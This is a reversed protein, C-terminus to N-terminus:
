SCILSLIINNIISEFKYSEDTSNVVSNLKNTLAKVDSSIMVNFGNKKQDILKLIDILSKCKGIFKGSLSRSVPKSLDALIKSPDTKDYFKSDTFKDVSLHDSNLFNTYDKYLKDCANKFNTVIEIDLETPIESNRNNKIDAQQQKDNGKPIQSKIMQYIKNYDSKLTNLAVLIHKCAMGQKEPNTKDPPRIERDIGSQSKYSIYKYGHYLFASCSCSIRIDSNIAGKLSRLINGTLSTLQIRVLYQRTKTSSSVTYEIINGQVRYLKAVLGQSVSRYKSRRDSRKIIDRFNM